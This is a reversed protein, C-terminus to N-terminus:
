LLTLSTIAFRYSERDIKKAICDRVVDFEEQTEIRRCTLICGDWISVQSGNREEACFHYAVSM